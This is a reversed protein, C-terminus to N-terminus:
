LFLDSYICQIESRYGPGSRYGRYGQNTDVKVQGGQDTSVGIEM